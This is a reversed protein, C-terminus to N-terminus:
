LARDARRVSVIVSAWCEDEGSPTVSVDFQTGGAYPQEGLQFALAAVHGVGDADSTATVSSPAPVDPHLTYWDALAHIAAIARLRQGATGPDRQPLAAGSMFGDAAYADVEDGQVLPQLSGGSWTIRHDSIWRELQAQREAATPRAGDDIIQQTTRANTM